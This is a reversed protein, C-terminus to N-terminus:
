VFVRSKTGMHLDLLNAYTHNGVGLEKLYSGCLYSPVNTHFEEFLLSCKCKLRFLLLEGNNVIYSYM